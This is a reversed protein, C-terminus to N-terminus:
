GESIQERILDGITRPEEDFDEDEEEEKGDNLEDVLEDLDAHVDLNSMQYEVGYEDFLDIFKQTDRRTVEGVLGFWHDDISDRVALLQYDPCDCDDDEDIESECFECVQITSDCTTGDLIEAAMDNLDSQDDLEKKKASGLKIWGFMKKLVKM